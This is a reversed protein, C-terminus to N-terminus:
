SPQSFHRITELPYQTGDLYNQALNKIDHYRIVSNTPPHNEQILLIEGNRVM